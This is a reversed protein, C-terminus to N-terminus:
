QLMLAKLPELRANKFDLKIENIWGEKFNLLKNNSILDKCFVSEFVSQRLNSTKLVRCDDKSLNLHTASMIEIPLMSVDELEENMNFIVGFLKHDEPEVTSMLYSTYGDQIKVSLIIEGKIALDFIENNTLGFSNAAGSLSYYFPSQNKMPEDKSM